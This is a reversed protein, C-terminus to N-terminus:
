CKLHTVINCHEDNFNQFDKAVNLKKHVEKVGNNELLVAIDNIKDKVNPSIQMQSNKENDKHFSNIFDVAQKKLETKLVEPKGEIEAIDIAARIVNLYQMEFSETGLERPEKTNRADRIIIPTTGEILPDIKTLIIGTKEERLIELKQLAETFKGSKVAENVEDRSTHLPTQKNNVLFENTQTILFYKDADFQEKLSSM